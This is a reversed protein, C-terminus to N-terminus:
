VRVRVYLYNTALGMRRCSQAAPSKTIPVRDAAAGAVRIMARERTKLNWESGLGLRARVPEPTIAIGARILMRQIPKLPGPLIDARAMIDLFEFIIPSPELLPLIADFMAQQEALSKPAATAGYLGAAPASEAYFRDKTQPSLRRVYASYAELFGFSATAQVWDLLVPDNARYAQGAPTVGEVRDHMRRVRAIMPESKSRPGYVTLMAALGTREMRSVPDVRFTTHDWVGSRVRPEALELLVATVGGVFLAIPNKFVQWSVSDPAALAPEGAPTSFDVPFEMKQRLNM